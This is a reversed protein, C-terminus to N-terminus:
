MIWLGGFMSIGNGARATGSNLNQSKLQLKGFDCMSLQAKLIKCRVFESRRLCSFKIKKFAPRFRLQNSSKACFKAIRSGSIKSTNYASLRPTFSLLMMFILMIFGSFRMKIRSASSKFLRTLYDIGFLRYQFISKSTMKGSNLFERKIRYPLDNINLFLVKGNHPWLENMIDVLGFTVRVSNFWELENGESWIIDHPDGTDQTVSNILNNENLTGQGAFKRSKRNWWLFQALTGEVRIPRLKFKSNRHQM